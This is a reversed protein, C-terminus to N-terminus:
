QLKKKPLYNKTVLIVRLLVLSLQNLRIAVIFRKTLNLKYLRLVLKKAAANSEVNQIFLSASFAFTGVITMFIKKSPIPISM